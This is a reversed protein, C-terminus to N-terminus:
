QVISSAQDVSEIADSTNDPIGPDNPQVSAASGTGHSRHPENTPNLIMNAAGPKSRNM